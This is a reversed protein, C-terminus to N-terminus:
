LRVERQYRRREKKDMSRATVVYGKSKRVRDVAVFLYRGAATQGLVIYRTGRKFVLSQLNFCVEEVEQATVHHRAIHEVSREDWLLETIPPSRM